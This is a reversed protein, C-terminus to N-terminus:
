KNNRDPLAILKGIIADYEEPSFGGFGSTPFFTIEGFYVKKDVEYFDIRSFPKDKSLMSALGWMEDYSFPKIPEVEAFPYGQPEHFPQHIWNRDFFDVSMKTDRGSIVQCYKPEGNFCFFKYDSLDPLSFRYEGNQLENIIVGGRKEGPLVLMHGLIKDYQDPRFSGLGSAPYVTIEGFFTHDGTEYLDIRSFPLGKALESAIRIQTELNSPRSPIVAAHEALSSLGIFEQHMWNSDFFDITEKTTRDQIVQCYKPEGNFCYWKFDPIDKINASPEIYKEAIIRKPVNKYPWEKLTRYIDQKLSDKLRSIARQRDFTSKNKCIVVGTSGGGHTTKLVFKEPLIDWEIDEPRDWVGLIPIIYEKGIISAVYDKVAYKDVMKTYEPKRDYLKLWQLKESFTQPNNLNLRHGVILRYLWKLYVKDPLWTFFHELVLIMTTKPQTLYEKIPLM